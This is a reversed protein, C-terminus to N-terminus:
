VFPMFHYELARFLANRCSPCVAILLYLWCVAVVQYRNFSIFLIVKSTPNSPLKYISVGGKTFYNCTHSMNREIPDEHFLDVTSKTLIVRDNWLGGNAMMAAIKAM